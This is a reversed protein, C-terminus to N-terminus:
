KLRHKVMNKSMSVVRRIRKKPANKIRDAMCAHRLRCLAHGNRRIKPKSTQPKQPTSKHQFLMFIYYFGVSFCFVSFTAAISTRIDISAFAISISTYLYLVSYFICEKRTATKKNRIIGETFFYLCSLAFVFSITYLIARTFEFRM